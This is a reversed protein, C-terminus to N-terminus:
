IGNDRFPSSLTLIYLWFGFERQTQPLSASDLQSFQIIETQSHYRQYKKIDQSSTQATSHNRTSEHTIIWQHFPLSLHFFVLFCILWLHAWCAFVAGLIPFFHGMIESSSCVITNFKYLQFLSREKWNQLATIKYSKEKSPIEIQLTDQTKMALKPTSYTSHM